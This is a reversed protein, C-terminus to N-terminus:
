IFPVLFGCSKKNNDKRENIIVNSEDDSIQDPDQPHLCLTLELSFSILCSLFLFHSERKKMFNENGKCPPSPKLFRSYSFKLIFVLQKQHLLYYVGNLFLFLNYHSKQLDSIQQCLTSLIEGFIFFQIEPGSLVGTSEKDESWRKM